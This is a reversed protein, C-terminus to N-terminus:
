STSCTVFPSILIHSNTEHVLIGDELEGIDEGYITAYHERGDEVSCVPFASCVKM